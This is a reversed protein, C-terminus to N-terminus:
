YVLEQCEMTEFIGLFAQVAHKRHLYYSSKCYIPDWWCNDNYLYSRRIIERYKAKLKQMTLNFRVDFEKKTLNEYVVQDKYAPTQYVRIIESIKEM